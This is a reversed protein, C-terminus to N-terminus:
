VLFGSTLTVFGCVHILDSASCEFDTGAKTGLTTGEQEMVGKCAETEEKGVELGESM